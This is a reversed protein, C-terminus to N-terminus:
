FGKLSMKEGDTKMVRCKHEKQIDEGGSWFVSLM